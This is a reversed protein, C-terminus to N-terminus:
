NYITPSLPARPDAVASDFQSGADGEREGFAACRSQESTVLLELQEHHYEVRSVRSNCRFLVHSTRTAPRSAPFSARTVPPARPIPSAIARCNTASPRPDHNAIQALLLAATGDGLKALRGAEARQVDGVFTRQASEGLVQGVR